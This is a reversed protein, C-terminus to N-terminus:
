VPYGFIYYGAKKGNSKKVQEIEWVYDDSSEPGILERVDDITYTRVLSAQGDWAYVLPLVPILFTFLLSTLKIPRVFLSLVLAMIILILLSLPLLIWWVILPINNEALEYILIAEKNQQAAHLIKQATEPPMHHFSAIMTKLGKPMNAFDTADVSESHYSIHDLKAANIQTVVAQNPYKDSLRLDIKEGVGKSANISQLVEIMPGGSGSGLDIIQNYSMKSQCYDLLQTLVDKTGILKHFVQLLDTVGTRVVKPLWHFDEFEFLQIRKM